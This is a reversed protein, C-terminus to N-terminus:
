KSEKEEQYLRVHLATKCFNCFVIMGIRGKQVEGRDCTTAIAKDGSYEARAFTTGSYYNLTGVETTTEWNVGCPSTKTFRVVTRLRTDEDTHAHTETNCVTVSPKEDPTQGFAAIVFIMFITVLLLFSLFRLVHIHIYMRGLQFRM